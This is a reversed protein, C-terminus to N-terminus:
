AVGDSALASDLYANVSAATIRRHGGETRDAVLVGRDSLRCVKYVTLGTLKVVEGVTLCATDPLPM